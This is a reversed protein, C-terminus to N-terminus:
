VLQTGSATLQRRLGRGAPPPPRLSPASSPGGETAPITSLDGQTSISTSSARRLMSPSKVVKGKFSTGLGSLGRQLSFRRPQTATSAAATTAGFQDAGNADGCAVPAYSGQDREPTANSLDSMSSSRSTFRSLTPSRSLTLAGAMAAMAASGRRYANSGHTSSSVIAKTRLSEVEAKVRKLENQLSEWEDHTVFLGGAAAAAAKAAGRAKASVAASPAGRTGGRMGVGRAGEEEDALVTPLGSEVLQKAQEREEKQRQKRERKDRKLRDNIVRAEHEAQAKEEAAAQQEARKKEEANTLPRAAMAGATAAAEELEERQRRNLEEQVHAWDEMDELDDLEDLADAASGILGARPVTGNAARPRGDKTPSSSASSSASEDKRMPKKKAKSKSWGKPKAM